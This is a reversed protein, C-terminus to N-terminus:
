LEKIAQHVFSNRYIEYNHYLDENCLHLYFNEHVETEEGKRTKDPSKWRTFIRAMRRDPEKKSSNKIIQILIRSRMNRIRNVIDEADVTTLMICSWHSRAVQFYRCVDIVEKKQYDQAHLWNGADDWVILPSRAYIGSVRKKSKILNIFEKRDYVYYKQLINWSTTNYVQSAVLLSYLSKGMGQYGEVIVIRLENNIHWLKIAPVLGDKLESIYDINYVDDDEDLM